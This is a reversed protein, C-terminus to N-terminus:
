LAPGAGEAALGAGGPLVATLIQGALADIAPDMAARSRVGDAELGARAERVRAQAAERAERLAKDREANWVAIQKERGQALEVRAARLKEAYERAQAEADAVAAAAKERAGVTRERREALTRRLPRDVLRTYCFVLLLFLLMTPVSGLFLQGLQQFILSM